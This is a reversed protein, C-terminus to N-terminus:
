FARKLCCFIQNELKEFLNEDTFNSVKLQGSMKEGRFIEIKSSNWHTYISFILLIHCIEVKETLIKIIIVQNRNSYINIPVFRILKRSEEYIPFFVLVTIPDM